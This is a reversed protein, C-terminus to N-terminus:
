SWYWIAPPPPPKQVSLAWGACRRGVWCIAQSWEAARLPSSLLPAPVSSHCGPAVAPAQAAALTAEAPGVSQPKRSAPGQAVIPLSCLHGGQAGELALTRFGPKGTAKEYHGSSHGAQCLLHWLLSAGCNESKGSMCLSGPLERRHVSKEEM